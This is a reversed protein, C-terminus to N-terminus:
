GLGGEGDPLPLKGRMQQYAKLIEALGQILILTFGLPIMFKILYRAPLGGPDPTTERVNWSVSVFDLSIWIGLVCFPILFFIGGLLNVWVKAKPSLNTYIIDVRVHRDHKLTYAAGVLYLIGFIYWSADQLALLGAGFVYRLVVNLCVVLVMITTLWTSGIGVAETFRDTYRIYTEPGILIAGLIIAVIGLLAGIPTGYYILLSFSFAESVIAVVGVAVLITGVVKLFNM